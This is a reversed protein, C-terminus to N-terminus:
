VCRCVKRSLRIDCTIPVWETVEFAAGETKPWEFKKYEKKNRM